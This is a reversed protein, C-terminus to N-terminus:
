VCFCFFWYRPIPTKLLRTYHTTHPPKHTNTHTRMHTYTSNKPKPRPFEVLGIDHTNHTHTHTICNGDHWYVTHQTHAHTYKHTHAWPIQKKTGITNSNRRSEKTHLIPSKKWQLIPSNKWQLIPNKEQLYQFKSSGLLTTFTRCACDM